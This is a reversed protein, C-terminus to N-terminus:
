PISALLFDPDLSDAHINARLTRMAAERCLNEIEAGSRGETREALSDLLGPSLECSLRVGRLKIDFIEPFCGSVAFVM